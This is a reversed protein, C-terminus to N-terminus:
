AFKSRPAMEKKVVFKSMRDKQTELAREKKLLSDIFTKKPKAKSRVTDAIRRSVLLLHEKAEIMSIFSAGPNGIAKMISNIKQAFHEVSVDFDKETEQNKLDLEDSRGDDVAIDLISVLAALERFDTVDRKAEFDKSELRTIFLELDMIKYCNQRSYSIDNFCFTM